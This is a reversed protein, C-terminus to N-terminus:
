FKYGVSIFWASPYMETGSIKSLNTLSRRWTLCVQWDMLDMGAGLNIGWEDASYDKEFDIEEGGNKGNFSHLFYGGLVPFVRIRGGYENVLNVHVNLPIV